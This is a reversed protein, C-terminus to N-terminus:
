CKFALLAKTVNQGQQGGYVKQSSANHVLEQSAASCDQRLETLRSM